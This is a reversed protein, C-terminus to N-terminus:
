PLRQDPMVAGDFALGRGGGLRVQAGQLSGCTM